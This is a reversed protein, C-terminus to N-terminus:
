PLQLPEPRIRKYVNTGWWLPVVAEGLPDSGPVWWGEQRGQMENKNVMWFEEIIKLIGGADPIMVYFTARYRNGAVKEWSGVTNTYPDTWAAGNVTGGRDFMSMTTNPDGPSDPDPEFYLAWAGEPSKKGDSDDDAWVVAPALLIV